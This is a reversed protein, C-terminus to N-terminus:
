FHSMLNKLFPQKKKKRIIKNIELEMEKYNPYQREAERFDKTHYASRGNNHEFKFHKHLLEHYMIYDLINQPADKFISSVVVTDNHFNYHALKRFAAKGWMLNPQEMLNYFYIANLRKYSAELIPDFKTTPTLTPIHKLFTNYLHINNTSVKKKLIKTLLHQILGIKIENDIDKWQLNLNVKIKNKHLTINANFDSLRRNYELETQYTFENNPFLRQFSEEILNM